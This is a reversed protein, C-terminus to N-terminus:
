NEIHILAMRIAQKTYEQRTLRGKTLLGIAGQEEGIKPNNTLGHQNIAQSMDLGEEIMSKTIAPNPFEWASSLGLHYDQGDYIACVCVDFYGTKSGVVAMLGSELGFSYDCEWFAKRARNKAGAITEELSLPQDAVGSSVNFPLVLSGTLSPYEQIIEKVARVKAPNKSGIVLKM